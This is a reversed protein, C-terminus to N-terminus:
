VTNWLFTQLHGAITSLFHGFADLPGRNVGFFCSVKARHWSYCGLFSRRRVGSHPSEISVPPARPWSRSVNETSSRAARGPPEAGEPGKGDRRPAIPARRPSGKRTWGSPGSPKGRTRM